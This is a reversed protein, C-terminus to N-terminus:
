KGEAGSEVAESETAGAFLNLANFTREFSLGNFVEFFHCSQYHHFFNYSVYDMKITFIAHCL